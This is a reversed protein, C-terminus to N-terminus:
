APLHSSDVSACVRSSIKQRGPHTLKIPRLPTLIIPWQCHTAFVVKGPLFIRRALELVANLDQTVRKKLDLLRYSTIGNSILLGVFAFLFAVLTWQYQRYDDEIYQTIPTQISDDLLAGISKQSKGLSEILSTRQVTLDIINALVKKKDAVENTLADVYPPKTTTSDEKQLTALLDDAKKQYARAKDLHEVKNTLLYREIAHITRAYGDDVKRINDAAGPVGGLDHKAWFSTENEHLRTIASNASITIEKQASLLAKLLQHYQDSEISLERLSRKLGDIAGCPSNCRLLEGMWYMTDGHAKDLASGNPTDFLALFAAQAEKALSIEVEDAAKAVHSLAGVDKWSHWSWAALM